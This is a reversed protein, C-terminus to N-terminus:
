TLDSSADFIQNNSTTLIDMRQLNFIHKEHHVLNTLSRHHAQRILPIPLHHSGEHNNMAPHPNPNIISPTPISLQYQLHLSPM